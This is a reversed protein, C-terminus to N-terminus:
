IIVLEKKQRAIWLNLVAPQEKKMRNFTQKEAEKYTSGAKMNKCIMNCIINNIKKIENITIERKMKERSGKLTM